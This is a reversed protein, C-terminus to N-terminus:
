SGRARTVSSHSSGHKLGNYEAEVDHAGRITRGITNNWIVDWYYASESALQRYWEVIWGGIANYAVEANHGFRIIRGVSDSFMQDLIVMVEHRTANWIVAIDHIAPKFHQEIYNAAKTLFIIVQLAAIVVQFMFNLFDAFAKPNKSIAQAIQTISNAFSSM